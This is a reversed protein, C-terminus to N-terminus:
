RVEDDEDDDPPTPARCVRELWLGAALLAVATVAVAAAVISDHRAAALRGSRPALWAAAGLGLGLCLAGVASAARALVAIRAADLPHLPRVRRGDPSRTRAALRERTSVAVAGVFAALLGLSVAFGAPLSPLSGYALALLVYALVLGIGALVLGLRWGTPRM